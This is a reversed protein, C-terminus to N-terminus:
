NKARCTIVANGNASVTEHWDDTLVGNANCLVGGGFSNTDYHVAKGTSNAVGKAVCKAMRGANNTVAFFGDPVGVLAGDGDFLQCFGDHVVVASRAPSASVSVAAVLAVAGLIVVLARRM